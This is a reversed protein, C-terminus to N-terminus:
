KWKIRTKIEMLLKYFYKLKQRDFYKIYEEFSSQSYKKLIYMYKRFDAFNDHKYYYDAIEKCLRIKIDLSLTKWKLEDQYLGIRNLKIAEGRTATLSEGHNRYYYLEKPIFGMKYKKYVRLWFDYDEVLFKKANYGNLKKHIFSKYMFCAGICNSLPLEDLIGNIYDASGCVAGNEDIYNLKAFVFDCDTHLQFYGVMEEFATKEYMNDDSTWTYYEGSARKFGENLSKPLKLNEPNTFVKIRKDIEAFSNAIELTNDTSCDNIIILEWDTFTQNIVSEISEALYESGNYTPLVVSIKSM